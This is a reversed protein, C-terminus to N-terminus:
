DDREDDDFGEDEDYEDNGYDDSHVYEEPEDDYIDEEDYKMDVSRVYKEIDYISEGNEQCAHKTMYHGVNM